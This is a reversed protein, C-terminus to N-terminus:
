NYFCFKKMIHFHKVLLIAKNKSYINYCIFCFLQNLEKIIYVFWIIWTCDHFVFHPLHLMISLFCSLDIFTFIFSQINFSFYCFHIFIFTFSLHSNKLIFVLILINSLLSNTYHTSSNMQHHQNYNQIM